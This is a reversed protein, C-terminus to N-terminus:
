EISKQFSRLNKSENKEPEFLLQRKEKGTIQSHQEMEANCGMLRPHVM